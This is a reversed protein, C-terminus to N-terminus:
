SPTTTSTSPASGASASDGAAAAPSPSTTGAAPAGPPIKKKADLVAEHAAIAEYIEVARDPQLGRITDLRTQADLAPSMPVPTGQRMLSWSLLYANIKATRAVRRDMLGHPWILAYMDETEGHTLREKIDVFRGGSLPLRIPVPTVFDDDDETSV